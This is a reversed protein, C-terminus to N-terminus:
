SSAPQEREWAELERELVALDDSSVPHRGYREEDFARAIAPFPPAALRGGADRGFELATQGPRREVGRQHADSLM